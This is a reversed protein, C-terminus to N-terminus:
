GAEAPDLKSVVWGLSGAAQALRERDVLADSRGLGLEELVGQGLMLELRAGTMASAPRGDAARRRRYPGGRQDRWRAAGARAAAGLHAPRARAPHRDLA